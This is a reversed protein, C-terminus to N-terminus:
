FLSGAANRSMADLYPIAFYGLPSVFLAAALILATGVPERAPEYAPAAEDFYIIKVIKIYYYAGIVSTAIGVAALWVLDAQVAASFVYFKPWFGLLPPIGALSFMFMAMALALGPRSRSLGALSDISEVARGEADRMRLVVLFSGLTMVLYVAMYFLVAAAGESTGAALGIL